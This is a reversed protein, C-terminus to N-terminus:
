FTIKFGLCDVHKERTYLNCNSHTIISWDKLIMIKQPYSFSNLDIRWFQLCPNLKVLSQNSDYKQIYNNTIGKLNLNLIVVYGTVLLNPLIYPTNLNLLKDVM